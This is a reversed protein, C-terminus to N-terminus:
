MVWAFSKALITQENDPCAIHYWGSAKQLQLRIVNLDHSVIFNKTGRWKKDDGIFFENLFERRTDTRLRKFDQGAIDTKEYFLSIYGM